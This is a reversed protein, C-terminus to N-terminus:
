SEDTLQEMASRSIPHKAGCRPCNVTISDDSGFLAEPDALMPAKLIQMIKDPACGCWWRYLRSEITNVTEQFEMNAVAPQDLSQFWTQDWDPHATLLAYSDGDLHFFRCPRQESQSYYFEVTAKPDEGAFPVISRHLPKGRRVLEQYFMHSPEEKIGDTFFRGSVTSWETDATLFLSRPPNQLQITWALVENRPRAACHLTFAALFDRFLLILGPDASISHEQLHIFFDMFLPGFDARSLLVNRERVFANSVRIGESDCGHPAHPTTM